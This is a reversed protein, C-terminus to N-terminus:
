FYGEWDPANTEYCEDVNFCLGLPSTDYVIFKDGLRSLVAEGHITIYDSENYREDATGTILFTSRQYSENDIHTVEFRYRGDLLIKNLDVYALLPCGWGNWLRPETFGIFDVQEDEDFNFRWRPLTRVNEDSYNDIECCICHPDNDYDPLCKGFFGPTIEALIELERPSFLLGRKHGQEMIYIESPDDDLHFLFGHEHAHYLFAYVQGQTFSKGQRLYTALFHEFFKQRNFM